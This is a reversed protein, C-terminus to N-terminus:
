EEASLDEVFHNEYQTWYKTCVFEDNPDFNLQYMRFFVPFDKPQWQEKYTYCYKMGCAHMVSGSRPNNRDHTATIYPFGDKRVQEIVAQGAESTIGQHWFEKRLGYGFDHPEEMDVMIYGIPYNDEKLCIAYVYAQPQAYKAVYKEEYFRTAEELDKVPYWPLFQNVEEDKLLLFLAELDAKTFKRLILRDTVITPTNM